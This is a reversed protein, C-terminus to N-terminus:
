QAYGTLTGQAQNATYQPITNNLPSRSMTPILLVPSVGLTGLCPVSPSPGSEVLLFITDEVGTAGVYGKGRNCLARPREVADLVVELVSVHM